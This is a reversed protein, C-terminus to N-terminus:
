SWQGGMLDLITTMRETKRMVIFDIPRVALRHRAILLPSSGSWVKRAAEEGGHRSEQM